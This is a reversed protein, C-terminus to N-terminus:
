DKPPELIADASMPVGYEVEETPPAETPLNITSQPDPLGAGSFGEGSLARPLHRLAAETGDSVHSDIVAGLDSVATEAQPARGTLVGVFSLALYGCLIVVMWKVFTWFKSVEGRLMAKQVAAYAQEAAGRDEFHAVSTFVGEPPLYGLDWEGEKERLTITHNAMKELDFQWLLPPVSINFSALLCPTENRRVVQVRVPSPKMFPSM